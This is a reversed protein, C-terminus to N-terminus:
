NKGEVLISNSNSRKKSLINQRVTSVLFLVNIIILAVCIPRKLFIDFLGGSILLSRRLNVEFKECLVFAIVFPSLKFGGKVMLYGFLGMIYMIKLDFISNKSAYSGVVCLILVIPFLKSAKLKATLHGIKIAIYGVLFMLAGCFFLGVIIAYIDQGQKVFLEPGPILGHILLAGFLVAAPISGPIGLTLLPILAAGLVANNATEAACVGEINGNGFTEPHKSANKALGYSFFAATSEGIGPLLGVFIGILSSRILNTKQELMERFSVKLDEPNNSHVIVYSDYGIILQEAQLFIETLAFIGILGAVLDIGGDLEFVGFTFRRTGVIPDLGVLSFAMGFLAAILGKVLSEGSVSAIIILAMIILLTIEPSTFHIAWEGLIPFFLFLSLVGMIHGFISSYLAMFLAKGAKGKKTLPYGDLSTAAASATGPTNILIATISGGYNSGAYLTTLFVMATVPNLKFTMPITIALAITAGLGPIAGVMVGISLGLINAFINNFNWYMAFGAIINEFM